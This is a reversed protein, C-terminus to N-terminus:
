GNYTNYTQNADFNRTTTINYLAALMYARPNKINSVQMLSRMVELLHMSNLKLFRSKVLERPYEENGIKAYPTASLVADCIVDYMEPFWAREEPTGQEMFFDYEINKRILDMYGRVTKNQGAHENQRDTLGMDPYISQNFTNHNNNETTNYTYTTDSKDHPKALESTPYRCAQRPTVDSKDHPPTLDTTLYRCDQRLTADSKDHPLTLDSTPRDGEQYESCKLSELYEITPYTIAHLKGPILEIFQANSIFGGNELKINRYHRKIVGLNELSLLARQITRINEGYMTTLEKTNRQLFDSQFRKKWGIVYGTREDRIERPKYWYVCDSLIAIALYYPKGKDTLVTRYWIQPIMNGQINMQGIQDVIESGSQFFNM